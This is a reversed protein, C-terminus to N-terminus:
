GRTPKLRGPARRELCTEVCNLKKTSLCRDVLVQPNTPMPSGETAAPFAVCLILARLRMWAGAEGFDSFVFRRFLHGLNALTKEGHRVMVGGRNQNGGRLRRRSKVSRYAKGLGPIGCVDRDPLYRVSSVPSLSRLKGCFLPREEVRPGAHVRFRKDRQRRALAWNSWGDAQSLVLDCSTRM